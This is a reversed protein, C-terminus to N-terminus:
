YVIKREEGGNFLLRMLFFWFLMMEVGASRLVSKVLNDMGACGWLKLRLSNGGFVGFTVGSKRECGIGDERWRPAREYM